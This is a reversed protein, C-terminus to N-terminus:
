LAERETERERVHPSAVPFKVFPFCVMYQICIHM